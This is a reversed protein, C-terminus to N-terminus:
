FSVMTSLTDTTVADSRPKRFKYHVEVEVQACNVPTPDPTYIWLSSGYHATGSFVPVGATSGIAETDLWPSVRIMTSPQSPGISEAGIGAAPKYRWVKNGDKAFPMPNIGNFRFQSIDVMDVVSPDKIIQHYLQPAVLGATAVTTAYTDYFPKLRVEVYDIKFEQYSKAVNIVRNPANQLSFQFNYATNSQLTTPVGSMSSISAHNDKSMSKTSNTTPRKRQTRKKYTKKAVRKARPM